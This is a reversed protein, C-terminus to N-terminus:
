VHARGIEYNSTEFVLRGWHDFVHLEVNDYKELGLIYFTDNKDDNNPSVVNPIKVTCADPALVFTAQDSGCGNSATGTMVLTSGLCAIPVNDACFLANDGGNAITFGNCNGVWSYNINEGQASLNLNECEGPCLALLEQSGGNVVPAQSIDVTTCGTEILGCGSIDEVEWCYTGDETVVFTDDGAAGNWTVTYNNPNNFNVSLTVEDANCELISAQPAFTVTPADADVVDASIPSSESCANSVVVTYTGVGANITSTQQGGPTWLYTLNPNDLVTPVPDLVATGGPCVFQDNLTINPVNPQYQLNFSDTSTGCGNTASVTIQTNVYANGYPGATASLNDNALDLGEGSWTIVSTGQSDELFAELDVTEQNCLDV